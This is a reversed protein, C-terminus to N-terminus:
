GDKRDGHSVVGDGSDRIRIEDMKKVILYEYFGLLTCYVFGPVGDLFGRRLLYMYSFRMAPRFPLRYSFSKLFRRRAVPDDFDSLLRWDLPVEKLERIAEKAEMGAYKEHKQLWDVFGKNFSYHLLHGELEGLRGQVEPHEHVSRETYCIADNRYLRIFWTPYLTAHRIWRGMFYDKRRVRYATCGRGDEAAIACVEEALAPEVREDADVTLVWPYKYEVLTRAAERQAGYNVFTHQFVRAGHKKAIEATRDTSFSDFVVIDDCWSLSDMCGRLNVEENRTLVLASVTRRDM